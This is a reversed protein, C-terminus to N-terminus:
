THVSPCGGESLPRFAQDAATTAVLRYLDWEQAHETPTKVQFLYSPHIKRGDARISGSGFCDDDTPMAKMREVAARGDAKAAAVGMDTAAKLYHLAAAYVGAHFMNPWNAPTKPRVRDTFARTRDNLDWYFSETLHLGQATELGLAHITTASVLMSALQMQTNLGFEHAQKIMNVADSGSGTCIGFVKAGSAAAQTVYASFDTTDPFPYLSTGIVRGGAASVFHSTDAVLAHGFAYDPAVLFWTDGGARLTQTATSRALMWTDYTWHVTNPSCQRGTLESTAAGSVLIVKNKERGVGSVALAVASNVLELIVDVGDHDFWQRAIAVGIDPKNQFDAALVEVRMDKGATFEQVAQRVCAVATPGVNDRYTGSLDTLVGLRIIPAAAGAQAGAPRNSLAVASASSGILTRRTIM